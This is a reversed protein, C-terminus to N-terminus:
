KGSGTGCMPRSEEGLFNPKHSEYSVVKAGIEKNNRRTKEQFDNM